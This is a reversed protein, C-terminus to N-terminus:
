NYPTQFGLKALITIELQEMKEAESDKEHDYGNLHLVGHVVMHAFHAEYSKQQEQAEVSIVPDCIVIDGLHNSEDFENAEYVFSLVNTPYDKGRYDANLQRAENKDVIRVVLEQTRSSVETHAQAAWQQLKLTDISSDCANQISTELM